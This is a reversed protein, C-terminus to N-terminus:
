RHILIGLLEHWNRANRFHWHNYALLIRMFLCTHTHTHTHTHICHLDRVFFASIFEYKHIHIINYVFLNWALIIIPLQENHICYTVKMFMGNVVIYFLAWMREARYTQNICVLSFVAWVQRLDNIYYCLWCELIHIMINYLTTIFYLYGSSGRRGGGMM